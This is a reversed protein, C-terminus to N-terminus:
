MSCDTESCPLGSLAEEGSLKQVAEVAGTEGSDPETVKGMWTPNMAQHDCERFRNAGFISDVEMGALTDAVEAPDVTGAAQVGQATMMISQYGVRAFNDPPADYESTYADVFSQNDGTDLGPIYRIGGYTGYAASGLAGRVVAFTMTPSVLTVDEKLGKSVAQSVFKILDGGTMGLMAVQADSNQIQSIFSDYNDAGLESKSLGVRNYDDHENKMRREVRNLVSNGYAYDAIHFWVDSGLNNVTYGAVAEAIQATNTEARFVWKNCQSGTLPVAAGGPNYIVENDAAFSNLAGAVSSSIAGMLYNAGDRQVAEEAVQTATSSTTGTDKYVAEVDFGFEDDDQLQQIALEAGQRQGPGLGEYSGSIPSLVGYTLTGSGGATETGGGIEGLCGAMGALGVASASQLVARRDIRRDTGGQQNSDQPM